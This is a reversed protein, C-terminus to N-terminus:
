RKRTFRYLVSEIVEADELAANKLIEKLLDSEDNHLYRIDLNWDTDAILGGGRGQDSYIMYESSMKGFDRYITNISVGFKVALDAAKVRREVNIIQIMRIKRSRPDLKTEDIDYSNNKKNCLNKATLDDILKELLEGQEKNLSDLASILARKESDSLYMYEEARKNASQIYGGRGNKTIIQTREKFYKIDSMITGRACRYEEILEEVTVRKRKRIYDIEENRRDEQTRIKGERKM